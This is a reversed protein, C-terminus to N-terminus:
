GDSPPWGPTKKGHERFHDVFERAREVDRQAVCVRVDATGKFSMDSLSAPIDNGELLTKLFVSETFTGTYVPVPIDDRTM